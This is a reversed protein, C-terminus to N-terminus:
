QKQVAYDSYFYLNASNIGTPSDYVWQPCFM